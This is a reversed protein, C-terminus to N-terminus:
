RSIIIRATVYCWGDKPVTLCELVTEHDSQIIRHAELGQGYCLLALWIQEIRAVTDVVSIHNDAVRCRAEILCEPREAARVQVCDLAELDALLSELDIMMGLLNEGSSPPYRRLVEERLVGFDNAQM